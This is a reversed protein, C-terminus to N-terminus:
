HQIVMKRTIVTDNGILKLYYTGSPLISLDLKSYNLLQKELILEGLPSVVQVNEFNNKLDSITILGSSPNPYIKILDNEIEDITVIQNNGFASIVPYDSNPGIKCLYLENGGSIVGTTYGVVMAGGDSTPIIENAVDENEHGITLGDVYNLAIIYNSVSVDYGIPYSASTKFKSIAYVNLSDGYKAAHLFDFDDSSVQRYDGFFAGSFDVLFFYSDNDVIGNGSSGGYCNILGSDFIFANAWTNQYNGYTGQWEVTGDITIRAVWAKTLLSDENFYHGAIIYTTDDFRELVKAVDDGTGGITKTWLTDGNKDTRVIYIDKNNTANSSSEGIMLVGTDILLAADHVREWGNGGYSKEWELVGNTDTKALYYDFGGNGFSNTFGCIYFGYSKQYLVRRGSESEAGGYHNSWLFKGLSDVKMLLAQSSASFSSSSGTVVYSSDELQIVGEGKDVGNDSYFNFFKIQGFSVNVTLFLFFIARIINGM